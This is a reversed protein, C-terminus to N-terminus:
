YRAKAQRLMQIIDAHRLQTAQPARAIVEGAGGLEQAPIPKAHNATCWLTIAIFLLTRRM